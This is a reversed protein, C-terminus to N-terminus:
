KQDARLKPLNSHSIDAADAQEKQCSSSTVEESKNGLRVFVFHAKGNVAKTLIVDHGYRIVSLSFYSISYRPSTM